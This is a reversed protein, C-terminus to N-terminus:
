EEPAASVVGVRVHQLELGAQWGCWVGRLQLQIVGVDDLQELVVLVLIADVQHQLQAGAALQVLAERVLLGLM